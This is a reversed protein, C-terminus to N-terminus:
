VVTHTHTQTHSSLSVHHHLHACLVMTMAEIELGRPVGLGRDNKELVTTLRERKPWWRCCCWFSLIWLDPLENKSKLVRGSWLSNPSIWRLQRACQFVLISRIRTSEAQPQLCLFIHPFQTSRVCSYAMSVTLWLYLRCFTLLCWSPLSSRLVGGRCMSLLLGSYVSRVAGRIILIDRANITVTLVMMGRRCLITNRWGTRPSISSLLISGITPKGDSTTWGCNAWPCYLLLLVNGVEIM